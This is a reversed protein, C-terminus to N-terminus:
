CCKAANSTIFARHPAAIRCGSIGELASTLDHSVVTDIGSARERWGGEVLLEIITFTSILCRIIKTSITRSCLPLRTAWFSCIVEGAIVCATCRRRLIKPSGNNMRSGCPKFGVGRARSSSGWSRAM